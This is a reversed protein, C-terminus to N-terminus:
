ELSEDINEDCGRGALGDETGRTADGMLHEHSRELMNSSVSEPIIPRDSSDTAVNPASMFCSSSSFHFLKGPGLTFSNLIGRFSSGEVMIGIVIGASLFLGLRRELPLSLVLRDDAVVLLATPEFGGFVHSAKVWCFSAM